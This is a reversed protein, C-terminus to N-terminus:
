SPRDRLENLVVVAPAIVLTKPVLQDIACAHHIM